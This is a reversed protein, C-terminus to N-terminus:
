KKYGLKRSAWDRAPEQVKELTSKEYFDFTEDKNVHYLPGKWGNDRALLKVYKENDKRFGYYKDLNEQKHNEFTFFATPNNETPHNAYGFYYLLDANTEKIYEIMEKTYKDKCVNFKGTTAKLKYSQSAEKGMGIVENIRRECNTGSLDDVDLLFKMIGILETKSDNM